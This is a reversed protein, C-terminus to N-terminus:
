LPLLFSKGAHLSYIKVACPKKGFIKEAALAYYTLQTAHRSFLYEEAKKDDALMERTLRDTKYDALILEGDATEILLDIVGQTFVSLHEYAEKENETFLSAPLYTNFRFERRVNGASLLEKQLDSKAFSVLEWPRVHSADTPHLFGQAVLRDIEKQVSARLEQDTNGTLASFDCFQLFLHTAIGAKAAANEEVGSLFFPVTKKSESETKDSFVDEARETLTDEDLYAPFLKSVSVKSPLKSEAEHPYVFSFREEYERCFREVEDSSIAPNEAKEAEKSVEEKCEQPKEASKLFAAMDTNTMLRFSCLDQRKLIAALIWEFFKTESLLTRSPFASLLEANAMVNGCDTNHHSTIYMQESARTLAVYLVRIEEELAENAIQTELATYFTNELIALGSVDRIPLAIGLVPHFLLKPKDTKPYPMTDAIFCVPFELGKSAHMTMIKVGGNDGLMREAGLSAGSEYIENLHSLFRYLGHFAGSEYQRACDYLTHLRNKGEKDTVTYLGTEDFLYRCLKDAREGECVSRFRTLDALFRKGKLFEEHTETYSLLADYLSPANVTRILVLEDMTFRYLPSRLLGALYIDRRPNNVTQLLCLALLIEPNEFFNQTDKTCVPIGHARLASVIDIPKAYGSRYLVAIDSPLLPTDGDKKGEALVLKIKQAIIDWESTEDDTGNPIHVYFLEPRPLSVSPPKRGTKLADESRYGISEGLKGFLFDFVANNFDILHGHSRFNKTLYLVTNDKGEEYTPFSARLSAFIAPKAGRFAYISQKIDGVMFRNKPKSIAEFILHQLDNVDQYEDICIADYSDAIEQALPTKSGDARYLLRYAHHELDAYTCLGARRKEGEFRRDFEELLLLVTQTLRASEKAAYPIDEERWAFFRSALKKVTQAFRSACAKALKAAEALDNSSRLSLFTAGELVLKAATYSKRVEQAAKRAFNEYSALPKDLKKLFVVDGELLADERAKHLADAYFLLTEEVTKQVTKGWPTEFFPSSASQQLAEQNRRLIDMGDPYGELDTYLSILTPVLDKEFRADTACETLYAIDLGEARYSGDFTDTILGDMLTEMLLKKEAPDAIRYHPAIGLMEAHSRVLDNCFSDITRITASPLLLSSRLLHKNDPDAALAENLAKAIRERLEAAAARTFTVVVMRSVDLPDKKATIMRILRETLTATKGSGAAASLLVTRDTTELARLQEPTFEKAM